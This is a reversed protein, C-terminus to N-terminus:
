VIMPLSGMTLGTSQPTYSMLTSAGAGAGGSSNNVSQQPQSGFTLSGGSLTKGLPQIMPSALQMGTNILNGWMASRAANQQLQAQQNALNVQQQQSANFQSNQDRSSLAGMLTTGASSALPYVLNAFNTIANQNTAANNRATDNGFTFASLLNQNQQQVNENSIRGLTSGLTTSNANGTAGGRLRAAAVNADNARKTNEQLVNYYPDSGAQMDGFISQPDRALYSLNNNLGMTATQNAQSLAPNLSSNTTLTGTKPDLSSTGSGFDSSFVTDNTKGFVTSAKAAKAKPAKKSPM